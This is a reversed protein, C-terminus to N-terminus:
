QFFGPRSASGRQARLDSAVIVARVPQAGAIQAEEICRAFQEDGAPDLVEDDDSADIVIRLVDLAGHLCRVRCQAGIAASGEGNCVLAALFRKDDDLLDLAGLAVSDIAVSIFPSIRSFTVSWCSSNARCITSILGPVSGFVVLPLIWRLRAHPHPEFPLELINRFRRRRVRDTFRDKCRQRAKHERRDGRCGPRWARAITSSTRLTRTM